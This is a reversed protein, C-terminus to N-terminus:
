EQIEPSSGWYSQPVAKGEMKAKKAREINEPSGYALMKKLWSIHAKRRQDRLMTKIHQQHKQVYKNKTKPPLEVQRVEMSMTMRQPKHHM